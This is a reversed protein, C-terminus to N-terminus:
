PPLLRSILQKMTARSIRIWYSCSCRSCCGAKWRELPPRDHSALAHHDVSCLARASDQDHCSTGPTVNERRQANSTVQLLSTIAGLPETSRPPQLHFHEAIGINGQVADIDSTQPAFAHDAQQRSREH